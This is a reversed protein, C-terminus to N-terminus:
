LPFVKKLTVAETFGLLGKQEAERVAEAFRHTM